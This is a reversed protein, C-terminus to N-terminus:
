LLAVADDGQMEHFFVSIDAALRIKRRRGGLILRDGRLRRGAHRCPFHFLNASAIVLSVILKIKSIM